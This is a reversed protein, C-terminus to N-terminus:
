LRTNDQEATDPQAPAEIILQEPMSDALVIRHTQSVQQDVVM